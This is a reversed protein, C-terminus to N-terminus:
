RPTLAPHSRVADLVPGTLREALRQNGNPTLHMGDYAFARDRLDVADGLDIYRLSSNDPFRRALLARLVQQQARHMPAGRRDALYPQTVVLVTRGRALGYEIADVMGRCYLQWAEPCEGPDADSLPPMERAFRAMQEELSRAVSATTDLAAAAARNAVGPRFVTKEGRYAAGVDGGTRLAMAKERFILPFIPMYGTLRFVPSQHRFVTRNPGLLDNYGEYLCILDYALYEYDALTFRFSYAGENNYALNAVTVPPEGARQRAVNLNRELYAPIAQNWPVGYGFATSGGLMVVRVEGPRKRGVVPGRYGWVNLGAWREARAHLYVDVALLGGASLMVALLVAVAAFLFFRRRSPRAGSV